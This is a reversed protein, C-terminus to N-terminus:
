KKIQNKEEVVQLYHLYNDLSSFGRQQKRIDVLNEAMDISIKNLSLFDIATGTNIDFKYTVTDEHWPIPKILQDSTIWLSKYLGKKILEPQSLIKSLTEKKFNRAAILAHKFKEPHGQKGVQYLNEFILLYAEDITSFHTIKLFLEIIREKENPFCATYSLIFDTMISEQTFDLKSLVYFIKLYHNTLSDIMTRKIGFQEYFVDDQYQNKFFDDIYFYYFFSAIVGESAMMQSGNKLHNPMFCSSTIHDMHLEAYTSHSNVHPLATLYIFRNNKVGHVRLSSDRYSLWAEIDYGCDHPLDTLKHNSIDNSVIELHEAFGESFAMFPDTIATITHFKNSQSLTFEYGLNYLWLHSFEHSFIKEIGSNELDSWDTYFALFGLNPYAIEKNEDKLLLGVMETPDTWDTVFVLPENKKTFHNLRIGLHYFFSIENKEFLKLISVYKHSTPSLKKAHFLKKGQHEKFGIAEAIIIEM